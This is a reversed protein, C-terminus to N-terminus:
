RKGDTRLDPNKPMITLSLAAGDTFCYEFGYHKLTDAPSDHSIIQDQNRDLTKWQFTLQMKQDNKCVIQDDSNDNLQIDEAVRRIIM